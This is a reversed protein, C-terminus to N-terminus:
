YVLLCFENKFDLAIVDIISINIINRQEEIMKMATVVGINGWIHAVHTNTGNSTNIDTTQTREEIDPTNISKDILDPERTTKDTTNPTVTETLNPTDSIVRHESNEYTASNYGAVKLEDDHSNSGTNTKTETGTRKLETEESGKHTVETTDTGDRNFTTGSHGNEQNSMTDTIEEHRDYNDIPNYDYQTTKYLEDFYYLRKKSWLEILNKMVTPSIINLELERCQFLINNIIDNRSSELEEPLVMNDFITNDWEYLGIIDLFASAM